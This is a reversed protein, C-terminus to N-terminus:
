VNLFNKLHKENEFVITESGANEKKEICGVIILFIFLLIFKM